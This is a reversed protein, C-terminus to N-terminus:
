DEYIGYSELMTKGVTHLLKLAGLKVALAPQFLRSHEPVPAPIRRQGMFNDAEFTFCGAFRIDRLARVVADFDLTGCYPALHQDGIGNNDHIHVAKLNSGLTTLETYQDCGRMHGHGVDWCAGMLPHNDIALYENMEQATMYFFRGQMNGEASNEILLCVNHKEMAPYLTRFFELTEAFYAEKDRPYQLRPTFGSHIVMNRIGLMDCAEISRQVALMGATHDADPDMPNYDPSHAQVFDFGLAAATQKAALVGEKWNESMFAPDKTLVNYFSYDLHTFGTGEYCRVAEAPTSVFAPYLEGTTTALKM